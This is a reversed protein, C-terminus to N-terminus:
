FHQFTGFPLSLINLLLDKPELGFAKGVIYHNRKKVRNKEAAWLLLKSPDKEMKKEQLQYWEENKEEQEEDEDSNGVWLSQTGTPILHGHTKLLELQNFQESFDVSNELDPKEDDKKEKEM